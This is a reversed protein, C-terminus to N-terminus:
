PHQADKRGEAASALDLAECFFDTLEDAERRLRTEEPPTLTGSAVDPFRTMLIQFVLEEIIEQSTTGTLRQLDRLMRGIEALSSPRDSLPMAYSWTYIKQVWHGPDDHFRLVCPAMNGSRYVPWTSPRRKEELM